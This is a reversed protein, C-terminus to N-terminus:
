NLYLLQMHAAVEWISKPEPQDTQNFDACVFLSFSNDIISNEFASQFRIQVPEDSFDLRFQHYCTNGSYFLRYETPQVFDNVRNVVRPEPLKLMQKYIIDHKDIHDLVRVPMVQFPKPGYLVNQAPPDGFQTYKNRTVVICVSTQRNGTIFESCCTSFQLSVLLSLAFITNNVRGETRFSPLVPTSGIPSWNPDFIKSAPETWGLAIPKPLAVYITRKIKMNVFSENLYSANLSNDHITLQGNENNIYKHDDHSLVTQM